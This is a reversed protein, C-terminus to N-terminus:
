IDPTIQVIWLQRIGGTQDAISSQYNAPAMVPLKLIAVNWFVMSRDQLRIPPFLFLGSRIREWWKREDLRVYVGTWRAGGEPAPIGSYSDILGAFLSFTLHQIHIKHM